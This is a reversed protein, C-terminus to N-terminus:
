QALRFTLPLEYEVAVRRSGIRGPIWQNAPVSRVVRLAEEDCGSGIKSLLKYGSAQGLTDILFSVVVRGQVNRAQAQEPYNLQTTFAALAADGGIFLPPQDLLRSRWVGPAIEARYLVDGAPRYYLLQQKDHDYRQVLVQRQAPTRGFYEWIGVKTKKNMLGREWDTERLKQAAVPGSALLLGLLVWHRPLKM